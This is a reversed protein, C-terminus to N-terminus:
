SRKCKGGEGEGIKVSPLPPQTSLSCGAKMKCNRKQKTFPMTRMFLLTIAQLYM